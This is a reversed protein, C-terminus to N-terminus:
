RRLKKLKRRVNPARPSDPALELFRELLRAAEKRQGEDALSM